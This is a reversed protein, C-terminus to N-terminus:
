TRLFATHSVVWDEGSGGIDIDWLVPKEGLEDGDGGGGM